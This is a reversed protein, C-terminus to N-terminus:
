RGEPHCAVLPSVPWRCSSLGGAPEARLLLRWRQRGNGPEVEVVRKMAGLVHYRLDKRLDEEDSARSLFKRPGPVPTGDSGRRCLVGGVGHTRSTLRRLGTGLDGCDIWVTRRQSNSHAQTVTRV